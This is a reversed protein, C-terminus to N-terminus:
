EVLKYFKVYDFIAASPLASDDVFETGGLFSAISTLWINLESHKLDNISMERVLSGNLYYKVFTPTYECALTQFTDNLGEAKVHKGIYDKHGDYWKHLNVYYGNRDKSDNELIDIEVTAVNTNTGGSGDHTMLWFSTHWGAGSPVKLKSEYYGYKFKAKSILGSGTYDKGQSKEKKLNLYLFGDKVEVNEAKQTSWHKSDTRYDWVNTNIVSKDFEDSFTLEYSNNGIQITEKNQCSIISIALLLLIITRM